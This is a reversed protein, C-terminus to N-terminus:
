NDEVASMEELKSALFAIPCEKQDHESSRYNQRHIEIM